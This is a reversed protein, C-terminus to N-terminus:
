DMAVREPLPYPGALTFLYRMRMEKDSPHIENQPAEMAGSIPHGSGHNTNETKFVKGVFCTRGTRARHRSIM